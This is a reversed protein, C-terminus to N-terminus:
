RPGLRLIFPRFSRFLVVYVSLVSMDHTYERTNELIQKTTDTNEEFDM